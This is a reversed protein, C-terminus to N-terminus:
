NTRYRVLEKGATDWLIATGDDGASVFTADKVPALQRVAKGHAPWSKVLKGSSPNWARLVGDQSGTLVSKGDATFEVCLMGTALGQWVQKGTAAEWMRVRKGGSDLRGVGTTGVVWKGDPSFAVDTAYPDDYSDRGAGYSWRLESPCTSKIEDFDRNGRPKRLKSGPGLNWASFSAGATAFSQEDPAFALGSIFNSPEFLVGTQEWSGTDYFYVWGTNVSVALRSGDQSVALGSLMETRGLKNSPLYGANGATWVEASAADMGVVLTKADRVFALGHVTSKAVFTYIKKGTKADWVCVLGGDGGAAVTTKDPSVAVAKFGVASATATVLTVVATCLMTVRM